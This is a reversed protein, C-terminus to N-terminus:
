VAAKASRLVRMARLTIWRSPGGEHEGMDIELQDPHPNELAWRGDAGRKSEVLGIAEALRGDPQTGANRLHDLARLVDFHYGTPFSFQSFAPDIMKGTSLKHLLRRELM